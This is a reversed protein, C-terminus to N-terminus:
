RHPGIHAGVGTLRQVAYSMPRWALYLGRGITGEPFIVYSAKDKEWVEIHTQRFAIYGVVYLMTLLLLVLRGM